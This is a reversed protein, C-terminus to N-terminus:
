PAPTPHIVVGQCPPRVTDPLRGCPIGLGRTEMQPMLIAHSDPLRTRVTVLEPDGGSLSQAHTLDSALGDGEPQSPVPLRLTVRGPGPPGLTIGLVTEPDDHGQEPLGAGPMTRAVGGEEVASDQKGISANVPLRSM